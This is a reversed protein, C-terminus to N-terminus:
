ENSVRVLEDHIIGNSVLLSTAKSDRKGGDITSVKGGAEQVILAGASSSFGRSKICVTGDLKGSAILCLELAQSVLLRLGRTKLSLNRVIHLIWDTQEENYHSTLMFSLIAEDLNKTKSVHIPKGNCYSGQGIIASYLEKTAHIYVIGVALEGNHKLCLSTSYWPLNAAFNITGDVPDIVWEYVDSVNQDIVAEGVEESSFFHNPYHTKLREIMHSEVFLDTNTVIDRQEKLAIEKSLQSEELEKLVGMLCDIAFDKVEILDIMM